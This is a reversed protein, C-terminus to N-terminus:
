SIYKIISLRLNSIKLYNSANMKVLRINRIIMLSKQIQSFSYIHGIGSVFSLLIVKVNLM